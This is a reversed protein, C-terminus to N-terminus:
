QVARQVENSFHEPFNNDNYALDQYVVRYCVDYKYHKCLM